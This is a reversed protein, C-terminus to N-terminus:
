KKAREVRVTVSYADEETFRKTILLSGIWPAGDKDSLQWESWAIGKSRDEGALEWGKEQLQEKYFDALDSISLQTVINATQFFSFPGGGSDAPTVRAGEPRDLHPLLALGPPLDNAMNGITCPSFDSYTADPHQINISVRTNGDDMDAAMLEIWFDGQEPCFLAPPRTDDVDFVGFPPASFPLNPQTLGEQQWAQSLDSIVNQAPQKAELLLTEGGTNDQSLSGLITLSHLTNPDFPLKDPLRGLLLTDRANDAPFGITNNQAFWYSVFKRLLVNDDGVIALPTIKGSTSTVKVDAEKGDEKSSEPSPTPSAELTPMPSSEEEEIVIPTKPEIAYVVQLWATVQLQGSAFGGGGGGMGAEKEVFIPTPNYGGTMESISVVEGVAVDHLSALEEARARADKAALKRAQAMIEDPSDASFDIGYIDNAGAEIAAAMVDGVDDVNRITVGLNVNVIYLPQGADKVAGAGPPGYMNSPRRLHISYGTTQIDKEDVGLALLAQRVAEITKQANQSAVKIDKDTINVGIFTHAVDPKMTVSGRGVVTITRLPPNLSPPGAQAHVVQGQSAILLLVGIVLLAGISLIHKRPQLLSM